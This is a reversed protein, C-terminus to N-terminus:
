AAVFKFGGITNVDYVGFALNDRPNILRKVDAFFALLWSCWRRRVSVYIRVDAEATHGNCEGVGAFAIFYLGRPPPLLLAILGSVEVPYLLCCEKAPCLPRM